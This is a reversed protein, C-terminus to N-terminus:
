PESLDAAKLITSVRSRYQALGIRWLRSVSRPTESRFSINGVQASEAPTGEHESTNAGKFVSSFHVGVFLRSFGASLQPVLPRLNM